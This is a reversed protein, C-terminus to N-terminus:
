VQDIKRSRELLERLFDARGDNLNEDRAVSRWVVFIRCGGPLRRELAAASGADNEIGVAVDDGVGGDDLIRRPELHLQRKGGAAAGRSSGDEPAAPAVDARLDHRDIAS